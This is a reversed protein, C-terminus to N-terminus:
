PAASGALRAAGIAVAEDGLAATEIALAEMMAKPLRRALETRMPELLLDAASAMIGGLILTEPDAVVVLNGAAMALYKATDRVISISVGDQARAAELIHGVTIASLDDNVTDQVQSRDGAKIRWIMRRVIGAAAVEAEVCGAKRYDEREVPNLSLWGVSGARGRAGKVPTGGRVIGGITHTGVAFYVIDQVGRGAGVWAEAVAAAIGAPTAGNQVFPGAFRQALAAVVLATGPLEPSAAAVGLVRPEAGNGAVEDLARLAAAGHDGDMAVAARAQVGGRDDVRVAIARTEELAVGLMDM